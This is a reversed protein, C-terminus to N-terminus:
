EIDRVGTSIEVVERMNKLWRPALEFFGAFADPMALHVTLFGAVLFAGCRVVATTITRVWGPFPRGAAPLLAVLGMPLGFAAVSIKCSFSLGVAIGVWAYDWWRGSRWARALLWLALMTFFNAMPDVVFFHAEQVPLVAIAYLFSAFLAIRSDRYLTRAL